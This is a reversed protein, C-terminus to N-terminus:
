TIKVRKEDKQIYKSLKQCFDSYCVYNKSGIKDSHKLQLRLYDGKEHYFFMIGSYFFGKKNMFNVVKDIQPIKELSIDVYIMDCHKAKLQHLLIQFKQKFDKGYHDVRIKAINTPPDFTYSLFIHKPSKQGKKEAKTFPVKTNTYTRKIQKKYINPLYLSKCKKTFFYYGTLIAGRKYKQALKNNVITTDVPVKGLLLATESFGHHLNAKQSYIHFMIAEGFVADLGIDRAKQLILKLMRNMIGRGQFEPDVVAVGIEAITSEPVLVLAFHGIIKEGRQAVISYFKKGHSEFVKQPYYFLDKIYSYGYNKYILRVIGEEDGESFTRVTIPLTNEKGTQEKKETLDTYRKDREEKQHLPHSAYKLIIFKKGDKGLNRYEFLDMLDYIRNFGESAEEKLPVSLHKKSSMPLGWDHVDIRLGTKFPHLGIQIYGAKEKYAHLVANQILEKTSAVLAETDEETLIMTNSCTDRILDDVIKMFKLDSPIKLTISEHM